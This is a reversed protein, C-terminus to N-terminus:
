KFKKRREIAWNTFKYNLESGRLKKMEVSDLVHVHPVVTKESLPIIHIIPTGADINYQYPQNELSLFANINTSYQNKYEDVGPLITLKPYQELTNWVCGTFFFKAGTKEKLIWPTEIKLHVHNKYQDNFMYSPHTSTPSPNKMLCNHRNNEVKLYLDTWMPIILGRSFLDLFGTCGKMTPLEKEIGNVISTKRNPLNKWWNPIFHSAKKIPNDTAYIEIDTFCDLHIKSNKIFFM